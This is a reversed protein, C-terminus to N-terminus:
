RLLPQPVLIVAGSRHCVPGSGEVLTYRVAHEGRGITCQPLPEKTDCASLLAACGLPLIWTLNKM